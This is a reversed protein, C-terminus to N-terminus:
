ILKSTSRQIWRKAGIEKIKEKQRDTLLESLSM